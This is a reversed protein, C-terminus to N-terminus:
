TRISMTKHEGALLTLRLASYRTLWLQSGNTRVLIM